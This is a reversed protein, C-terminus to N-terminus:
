KEKREGTKLNYQIRENLLKWLEPNGDDCIDEKKLITEGIQRCEVLHETSDEEMRCHICTKELSIDGKFNAFVPQMNLRTKLALICAYGGLKNVYERRKFEYSRIFRLKTMNEAAKTIDKEMQKNIADKVLKKLVSKKM